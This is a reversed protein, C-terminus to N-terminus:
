SFLERTVPFFIEWFRDIEPLIIFPMFKCCTIRQWTWNKKKKKWANHRPHSLYKNIIKHLYYCSTKILNWPNTVSAVVFGEQWRLKQHFGKKPEMLHAKKNHPNYKKNHNANHERKKNKKKPIRNPTSNDRM